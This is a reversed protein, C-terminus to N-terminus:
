SNDSGTFYDQVEQDYGYQANYKALLDNNHTHLIGTELLEQYLELYPLDRKRALTLEKAVDFAVKRFTVSVLGQEDFTLLAYQARLDQRWKDWTWYPQGVSGPNLILQGSTSYRMTQVHVHGYIAVDVSLDACLRDFQEQESQWYLGGGYNREPFNHSLQIQLGSKSLRATKTQQNLYDLGEASLTELLYQGQRYLALHEPERANMVGSQKSEQIGLVVDDWNGRINVTIPLDKLMEVLEDGAPGPLFIDGLLWYETVGQTKADALVAELATGNGHIDSLVAITQM